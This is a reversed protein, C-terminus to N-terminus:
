IRGVKGAGALVAASTHLAREKRISQRQQHPASQKYINNRIMSGVAGYASRQRGIVFVKRYESETGALKFLVFLNYKESYPGFLARRIFGGCPYLLKAQLRIFNGKYIGYGRSKVVQGFLFRFNGM